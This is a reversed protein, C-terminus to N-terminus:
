LRMPMIVPHAMRLLAMMVGYVPGHYKDFARLKTLGARPQKQSLGVELDSRPTRCLEAHDSRLALASASPGASLPQTICVIQVRRPARVHQLSNRIDAAGNVGADSSRM